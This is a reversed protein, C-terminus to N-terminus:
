SLFRLWQFWSLRTREKPAQSAFRDTPLAIHDLNLAWLPLFCCFYSIVNTIVATKGFIAEHLCRHQHVKSKFPRAVQMAVCGCGSTCIIIFNGPLSHYDQCQTSRVWQATCYLYANSWSQSASKEDGSGTTGRAKPSCSHLYHIGTPTFCACIVKLVPASWRRWM